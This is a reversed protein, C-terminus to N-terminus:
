LRRSVPADDVPVELWLVHDDLLRLGPEDVLEDVKAVGLLEPHGAHCM